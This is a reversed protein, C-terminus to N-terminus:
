SLWRRANRPRIVGRGRPRVPRGTITTLGVPAEPTDPLAGTGAGVANDYGAHDHSPPIVGTHRWSEAASEEPFIVTPDGAPVTVTLPLRADHAAPEPVVFPEGAANLVPDGLPEVVAAVQAAQPSLLPSDSILSRIILDTAAGIMVIVGAAQLHLYSPSGHIAFAFVAGVAMALLAGVFSTRRMM